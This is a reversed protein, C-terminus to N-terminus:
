LLDEKAVSYSFITPYRSTEGDSLNDCEHQTINCAKEYNDFVGFVYESHEGCEDVAQITAVYVHSGKASVEETDIPEIVTIPMHENLSYDINSASTRVQDVFMHLPYNCGGAHHSRNFDRKVIYNISPDNSQLPVMVVHRFTKAYENVAKVADNYNVDTKVVYWDSDSGMRAKVNFLPQATKM